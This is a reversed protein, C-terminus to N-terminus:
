RMMVSWQHCCSVRVGLACFSELESLYIVNITPNQKNKAGINGRTVVRKDEM